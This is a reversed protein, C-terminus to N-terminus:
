KYLWMLHQVTEIQQQMLKLIGADQVRVRVRVQCCHVRVRKDLVRVQCMSSEESCTQNYGLKVSSATMMHYSQIQM